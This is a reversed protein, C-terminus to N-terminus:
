ADRRVGSALERVLAAAEESRGELLPGVVASGSVVGDAFAAIKRATEGDAVGFGVAVPLSSLRHIETVRRDLEPPVDHRAGTVGPRSVCYVFGTMGKLIEATREASTFPSILPILHLGSKRCPELLEDREELPLDVALIGDGGAAALAACLRELGFNLMVNFYGFLIFGTRPYKARLTRLMELVKALTTGVELARRSATAIVPGDAMPDSFPIGLEIIDAGAEIAREIFAGSSPLDPAGCEIFVVLAARNERRCESFVTQIRDM